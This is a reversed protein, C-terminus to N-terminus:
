SNVAESVSRDVPPLSMRSLDIIRGDDTFPIVFTFSEERILPDTRFFEYFLLGCALVLAVLVTRVFQWIISDSGRNIWIFWWLVMVILVSFARGCILITNKM